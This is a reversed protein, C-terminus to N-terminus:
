GNMHMALMPDLNEIAQLTINSKSFDDFTKCVVLNENTYDKPEDGEEIILKIKSIGICGSGSTLDDM